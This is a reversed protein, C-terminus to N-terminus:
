KVLLNKTVFTGDRFQLSVIYVGVRNPSKITTKETVTTTESILNGSIDIIQIKAGTLKESTYNTEVIFNDDSAVPNPYLKFDERKVTTSVTIPCTEFINGDKDTVIAYFTGNLGQNETYYQKTKNPVLEGDKYWQYSIYKESRNDFFLTNDFHQRVANRLPAILIKSVSPAPKYVKDGEQEATIIVQKRELIELINGNVIRAISEDSSTYHIPLGSSAIADLEITTSDDCGLRLDGEWTIKQLVTEFAGMDIIGDRIRENGEVDTKDRDEACNDSGHEENAPANTHCKIDENNGKNRAASGEGLNSDTDSFFKPDKNYINKDENAFIYKKGKVPYKSKDLQLLTYKIIAKSDSSTSIDVGLDTKSGNQENNWFVSNYIKIKTLYYNRVAGGKGEAKNSNFSCNILEPHGEGFIVAGGNGKTTNKSFDCNTLVPDGYSHFFLGGGGNNKEWYSAATNTANETFICNEITQDRFSSYMGGGQKVATNKSFICGKITPTFVAENFGHKKYSNTALGGGFKAKNKRFICNKITPFSRKNVFLGGGLLKANNEEFICNEITIYSTSKAFTEGEKPPSTTVVMGGGSENSNGNKVIFGDFTTYIDSDLSYVVRYANDSKDNEKGLDGSLITQNAKIDRENISKETGSFGGYMRVNNKLVFANERNNVDITTLNNMPRNPKYIGKAVFIIDYDKAQNITEQLDGSANAWSLGDGTGTASPKVYRTTQANAFVVLFLLITLTTNKM